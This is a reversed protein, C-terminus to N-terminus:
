TKAKSLERVRAQLQSQLRHELEEGTFPFDGYLANIAFALGAIYGSQYEAYLDSYSVIPQGYVPELVKKIDNM